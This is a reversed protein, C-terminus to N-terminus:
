YRWSSPLLTTQNNGTVQSRNKSCPCRFCIMTLFFIPHSGSYSEKTEDINLIETWFFVPNLNMYCFETTCCFLFICLDWSQPIFGGSRRYCIYIYLNYIINLYIYIYTKHVSFITYEKCTPLVWNYIRPPNMGGFIVLIFGLLCTFGHEVHFQTGRVDLPGSAGLKICFSCFDSPLSSTWKRATASRM